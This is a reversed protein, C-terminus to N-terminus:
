SSSSVHTGYSKWDVVTEGQINKSEFASRSKRVFTERPSIRCKTIHRDVTWRVYMTQREKILRELDKVALLREADTHAREVRDHANVLDVEQGHSIEKAAVNAAAEHNGQGSIKSMVTDVPDRFMDKITPKDSVPMDRVLRSDSTLVDSGALIPTTTIQKGDSDKSIHLIKRVKVATEHRRENFSDRVTHSPTPPPSLVEAQILDIQGQQNISSRGLGIESEPVSVSEAVFQM